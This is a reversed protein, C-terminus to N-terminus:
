RRQCRRNERRGEEVDNRKRYQYGYSHWQFYNLWIGEITRALYIEIPLRQGLLYNNQIKM